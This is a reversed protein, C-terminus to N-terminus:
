DNKGEESDPDYSYQSSAISQYMGLDDDDDYFSYESSGSEDSDSIAKEPSQTNSSLITHNIISPDEYDSSYSSTTLDIDNQALHNNYNSQSFNTHFDLEDIDTSSSGIQDYDTHSPSYQEDTHNLNIRQKYDSHSLDTYSYSNLETSHASLINEKAAFSKTNSVDDTRKKEKVINNEKRKVKSIGQTIFYHNQIYFYSLMTFVIMIYAVGLLLFPSLLYTVITVIEIPKTSKGTYINLM